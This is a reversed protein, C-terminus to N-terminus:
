GIEAAVDRMAAEARELTEEVHQRTTVTSLAMMGRPALFLGHNMAALHFRSVIEGDERVISSEPATESFYLNLCSGFHNISLPLGTKKAAQALGDRLEGCLAEMAAIREATLARVSVGGATMTVPNANFTGTHFVKMDAPDFIRMLERRGGVAGVPFGGGILKGFMTLDPELGM